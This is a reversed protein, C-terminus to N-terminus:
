KNSCIKYSEKHNKFINVCRLFNSDFMDSYFKLYKNDIDFIKKDFPLYTIGKTFQFDGFQRSHRLHITSYEKVMDYPIRILSFEITNKKYNINTCYCIYYIDINHLAEFWFKKQAIEEIIDKM